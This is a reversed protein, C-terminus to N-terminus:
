EDAMGRGGWYVAAPGSRRFQPASGLASRKPRTRQQPGALKGTRLSLAGAPVKEVPLTNRAVVADPVMKLGAEIAELEQEAKSAPM